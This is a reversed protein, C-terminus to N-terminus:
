QTAVRRADLFVRAIESLEDDTLHPDNEVDRRARRLVYTFKSRRRGNAAADTHEEISRTPM